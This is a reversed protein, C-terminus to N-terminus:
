EKTKRYQKGIKKAESIFFYVNRKTEHMREAIEDVSLGHYEKLVIAELYKPNKAKIVDCVADLQDMIDARSFEPEYYAEELGSELYEDWSLINAEHKERYEPFPCASCKYCDPCLILPKQTGPILCRRHRYESRHKARLDNLLM